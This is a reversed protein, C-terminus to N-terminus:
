SINNCVSSEVDEGKAETSIENSLTKLVFRKRRVSRDLRDPAKNNNM